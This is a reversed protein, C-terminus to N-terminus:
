PFSSKRDTSSGNQKQGLSVSCRTRGGRKGPKRHVEDGLHRRKVWSMMDSGEEPDEVKQKNQRPVCPNNRLEKRRSRCGVM